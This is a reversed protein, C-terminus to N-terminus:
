SGGLSKGPPGPTLVKGELVPSTLEMGPQPVLIGCAEHGFFWFMFCFCDQLLNLLSELFFLVSIKKKKKQELVTSSSTASSNLALDKYHWFWLRYSARGSAQNPSTTNGLWGIPAYVTGTPM